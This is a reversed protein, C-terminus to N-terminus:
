KFLPFISFVRNLAEKIKLQDQYYWDWAIRIKVFRSKKLADAIEQTLLRYDFGCVSM